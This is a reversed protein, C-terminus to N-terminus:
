SCWTRYDKPFALKGDATYAPGQPAPAALAAAFGGGVLAAALAATKIWASTM